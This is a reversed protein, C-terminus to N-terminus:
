RLLNIGNLLLTDWACLAHDGSRPEPTRVSCERDPSQELTSDRHWCDIGWGNYSRDGSRSGLLEFVWERDPSWEWM